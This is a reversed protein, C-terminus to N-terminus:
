QCRSYGCSRCLACGQDMGLAAGCEPCPGYSEANPIQQISQSEEGFRFVQDAKSGDRYVTVGKLGWAYASTFIDRIIEPSANHPLNVTKSVANDTHAQFAAQVELHKLSDIDHATVYLRRIEDPIGSINKISGTRALENELSDNWFGAQRACKKFGHHVEVLEQDDLVRRSYALAFLPEIGSSCGAIISLSGTPAITTVTANRMHKLGIRHYVSGRFSPFSGRKKALEASADRATSQIFAMLDACATLAEKSDYPLGLRILMDALGMVGLGIKRSKKTMEEIQPIPYRNVDIVNDLFRVALRVVPEMREYDIKKAKVFRSLNISGLNCSEYPLLPQEGCPNTAEIPGLGPLPNAENIRDIFVLGPDGCAWASQVIADMVERAPLRNVWRGTNPNVLDYEYDKEVATMFERTVSVSLNFNGFKGPRRAKLGIFELIDPHHVSLVGMNAGRRVGGQKITETAVDFVNMFSIPGSSVGHTSKVQDDAPRISSFSFGTGGGSRHIIATDRVADFISEISDGVPLVFCASLQGLDRGANMLTPSNPLFDMSAMLDYFREATKAASRETGYATEADAAVKSVRMLMDRPTEVVQNDEDRKLYRRELVLRGHSSFRPIRSFSGDKSM